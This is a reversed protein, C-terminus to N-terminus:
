SVKTDAITPKDGTIVKAMELRKAVIMAEFKELSDLHLKNGNIAKEIQAFLNMILGNETEIIGFAHRVDSLAKGIANNYPTTKLGNEDSLTKDKAVNAIANKLVKMAEAMSLEGKVHHNITNKGNETEKRILKATKIIAEINGFTLVDYASIVKLEAYDFAISNISNLRKVENNDEKDRFTNIHKKVTDFAVKLNIDKQAKYFSLAFAFFAKTANDHLKASQLFTAVHANIAVEDLSVALPKLPEKLQKIVTGDAQEVDILEPTTKM